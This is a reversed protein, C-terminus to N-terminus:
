GRGALDEEHAEQCERAFPMHITFASGKGPVSRLTIRGGMSEVLDRTISLGLGSGPVHAAHAANGRYFPDFIRAAEDAAVGPGMDEVIIEVAAPVSGPETGARVSLWRAPGGYRVANQILNRLCQTLARPDAMVEGLDPEVQKESVFGASLITPQLEAMVEDIVTGVAVRRLDLSRRGSEQGAYELVQEVVESLRRGESRVVEGYRRVQEASGSVIGEALNDGASCIVALPTRLEHSVGAVFEMQLRALRRARQASIVMLATSLGLLLLIGFSVALNRRRMSAVISDLSGGAYRAVLEWDQGPARPLLVLNSLIRAPRPVGAPARLPAEPLRRGRPRGEVVFRGLYERPDWLLPVRADANKLAAPRLDPDSRYVFQGSGPSDSIAVQYLFGDSGSFYRHALEPILETKLSAPSLEIILYGVMEPEAPPSDGRRPPFLPIRHVLAPVDYAMTWAFARVEPALRRAAPSGSVASKELADLRAPWAVPLFQERDRDLRLLKGKGPTSVEWVFVDEILSAWTLARWREVFFEASRNWDRGALASPPLQFAACLRLLERNFEGRFQDVATALSSKMKEREADSVGGIWRYQLIALVGLAVALALLILASRLPVDRPRQM